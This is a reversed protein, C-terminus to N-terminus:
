GEIDAQQWGSGIDIYLIGRDARIREARWLVVGNREMELTVTKRYFMGNGRGEFQGTISVSTTRHKWVNISQHVDGGHALYGKKRLVEHIDIGLPNEHAPQPASATRSAAQEPDVKGCEPRGIGM